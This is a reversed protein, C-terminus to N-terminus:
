TVKNFKSIYVRIIEIYDVGSVLLNCYDCGYSLVTLRCMVPLILYLFFM